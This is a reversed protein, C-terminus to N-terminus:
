RAVNKNIQEKKQLVKGQEILEQYTFDENRVDNIENEVTARNFASRSVSDAHAEMVKSYKEPDYKKDLPDCSLLTFSVSATLFLTLLKKM